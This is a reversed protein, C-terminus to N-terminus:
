GLLTQEARAGIDDSSQLISVLVGSLSKPAGQHHAVKDSLWCDRTNRGRYDRCRVKDSDEPLCQPSCNNISPQGCYRSSPLVTCASWTAARQGGAAFAMMTGRCNLSQQTSASWVLHRQMVLLSIPRISDRVFRTM